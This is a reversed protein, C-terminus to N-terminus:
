GESLDAERPDTIDGTPTRQQKTERLLQAIADTNEAPTLEDSPTSDDHASSGDDPQAKGFGQNPLQM